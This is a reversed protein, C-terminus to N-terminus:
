LSELLVTYTKGHGDPALRTYVHELHSLPSGSVKEGDNNSEFIYCVTVPRGDNGGATQLVFGFLRKNEQHSACLVM